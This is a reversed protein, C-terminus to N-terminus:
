DFFVKNPFSAENFRDYRITKGSKVYSLISENELIELHGNTEIYSARAIAKAVKSTDVALHYARM